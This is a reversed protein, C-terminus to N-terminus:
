TIERKGEGRGTMVIDAILESIRLICLYMLGSKNIGGSDGQEVQM